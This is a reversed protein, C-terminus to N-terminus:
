CCQFIWSVIRLDCWTYFKSYQVKLCWMKMSCRWESNKWILRTNKEFPMKMRLTPELECSFFWFAYDKHKFSFVRLFNVWWLLCWGESGTAAVFMACANVREKHGHLTTIETGKHSWVKVTGDSCASALCGYQLCVFYISMLRLSHPKVWYM